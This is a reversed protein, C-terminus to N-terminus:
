SRKTRRWYSGRFLNFGNRKIKEQIERPIIEKINKSLLISEFSTNIGLCLNFRNGLFISKRSNANIAKQLDELSSLEM